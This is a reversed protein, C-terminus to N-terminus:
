TFHESAEAELHKLEAQLNVLQHRAKNLDLATADRADYKKQYDALFQQAAALRRTLETRRKNLYILQIGILKAELLVDQRLSRSGYVLQGTRLDAL